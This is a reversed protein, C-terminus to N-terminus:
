FNDLAKENSISRAGVVEMSSINIEETTQVSLYVSLYVCLLVWKNKLKTEHM